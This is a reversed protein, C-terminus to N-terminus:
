PLRRCHGHRPSSPSKRSDGRVDRERISEVEETMEELLVELEGLSIPPLAEELRATLIELQKQEGPSLKERRYKRALLESREAALQRM